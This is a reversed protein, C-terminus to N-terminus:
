PLFCKLYVFGIESQHISRLNQLFWHLNVTSFQISFMNCENTVTPSVGAAQL